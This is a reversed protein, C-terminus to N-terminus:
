LMHYGLCTTFGYKVRDFTSETIEPRARLPRVPGDAICRPVPVPPEFGVQELLSDVFKRNRKMAPAEADRGKAPSRGRRAGAFDGARDIRVGGVGCSRALAATRLFRREGRHCGAGTSLENQFQALRIARPPKGASRQALHPAAEGRRIASRSGSNRPLPPTMADSMVSATPSPAGPDASTDWPVSRLGGSGQSRVYSNASGRRLSRSRSPHAM